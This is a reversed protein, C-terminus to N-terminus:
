GKEKVEAKRPQLSSTHLAETAVAEASETAVVALVKGARAGGDVVVVVVWGM